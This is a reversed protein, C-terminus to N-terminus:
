IATKRFREIKDLMENHKKITRELTESLSYASSELRKLFNTQMMGILFKERDAQNFRLRKKRMQWGNNQRKM